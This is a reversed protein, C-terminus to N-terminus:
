HAQPNSHCGSHVGRWRMARLPARGPGSPATERPQGPKSRQQAELQLHYICWGWSKVEPPRLKRVQSIPIATAAEYLKKIFMGGFWCSFRFFGDKSRIVVICILVVFHAWMTNWRDAGSLYFFISLGGFQLPHPFPGRYVAEQLTFQYLQEPYCITWRPWLKSELVM